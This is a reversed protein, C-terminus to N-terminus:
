TEIYAKTVKRNIITMFKMTRCPDEWYGVKYHAYITVVKQQIEINELHRGMTRAYLVCLPKAMSQQGVSAPRVHKNVSEHRANITVRLVLGITLM